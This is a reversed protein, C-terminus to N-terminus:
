FPSLYIRHLPDHRRPPRWASVLRGFLALTQRLRPPLGM